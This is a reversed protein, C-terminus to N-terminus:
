GISVLSYVPNILDGLPLIISKDQEFSHQRLNENNAFAEQVYNDLKYSHAKATSALLLLLAFFALTYKSIM